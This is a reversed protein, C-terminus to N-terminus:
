GKLMKIQISIISPESLNAVTLDGYVYSLHIYTNYNDEQKVTIEGLRCFSFFTALCATWLMINSFPIEEGVGNKIKAATAVKM